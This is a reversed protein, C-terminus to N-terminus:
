HNSINIMVFEIGTKQELLHFLKSIAIAKNNLRELHIVFIIIRDVSNITLYILRM